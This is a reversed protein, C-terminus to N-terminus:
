CARSRRGSCPRSGTPRRSCPTRRASGRSTRVSSTPCCRRRRRSRPRRSCASASSSCSCCRSASRMGAMHLLPIAAMLPARAGDCILMTRRAGLRTALGGAFGGLAVAAAETAMVLTMRTASGSTTLVFWPLAVWTMQSGTLSIVERALIGMLGRNRFLDRRSVGTCAGTGPGDAPVNPNFVGALTVALYCVGIAFLTASVGFREVALGGLVAGAPIALYAGAITAGFVRGRMHAPVREYAVTQLVPNLPGSALGWVAMLVLTVPLSPLLSLALYPVAALLFSFVFTQRRPLRHGVASYALSGLLAAGGFVGLMIGLYVASGFAEMAFVPFIVPFPADLFNTIFVILVIMRILPDRAVFRVGTLLESLYRGPAPADPHPALVPVLRAVLLASVAFSAANLWLVNIAGVGAVLLGAIPAGVLLSGRQIASNIGTARELRTGSLAVLDPLLSRRATTGPADFLAGLFVLAMVQWLEIGVTM